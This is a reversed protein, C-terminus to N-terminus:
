TVVGPLCDYFNIILLHQCKILFKCVYMCVYMCVCKTYVISENKKHMAVPPHLSPHSLPEERPRPTSCDWLGTPVPIVLSVIHMHVYM